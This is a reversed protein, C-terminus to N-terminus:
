GRKLGRNTAPGRIWIRCPGVAAAVRRRAAPRPSGELSTAPADLERQRRCPREVAHRTVRQASPHCSCDLRGIIRLQGSTRNAAAGTPRLCLDRWTVLDLHRRDAADSGGLWFHSCDKCHWRATAFQRTDTRGRGHHTALYWGAGLVGVAAQAATWTIGERHDAEYEISRFLDRLRCKCHGAGGVARGHGPGRLGLEDLRNKRVAIERGWWSIGTRM